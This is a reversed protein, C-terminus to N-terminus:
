FSLSYTFRAAAKNLFPAAGDSQDIVSLGTELGLSGYIAPKSHMTFGLDYTQSRQWEESGMKRNGSVEADGSLTLADTELARVLRIAYGLSVSQEEGDTRDNVGSGSFRLATEGGHHNWNLKLSISRSLEDLDTATDLSGFDIRQTHEQELKLGVDLPLFAPLNALDFRIDASWTRWQHTDEDKNRATNDTASSHAIELGVRRWSLSSAFEHVARDATLNVDGDAYGTSALVYGASSSLKFEKSHWLDAALKYSSAQGGLKRDDDLSIGFDVWARLRDDFLGMSNRAAVHHQVTQDPESDETTFSTGLSWAIPNNRSSLDATINAVSPSDQGTAADLYVRNGHLPISIHTGCATDFKPILSNYNELTIEGASVTQPPWTSAVATDSIPTGGHGLSKTLEPVAQCGAARALNAGAVVTAFVAMLAAALVQRM